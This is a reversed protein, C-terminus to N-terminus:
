ASETVTFRPAPTWCDTIGSGEPFAKAQAERGKNNLEYVTTESVGNRTITEVLLTTQKVSAM